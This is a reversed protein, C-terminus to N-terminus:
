AVDKLARLRAFVAQDGEGAPIQLHARLSASHPRLFPNTALELGITTPVTPRGAARTARIEDARALLAQLPFCM